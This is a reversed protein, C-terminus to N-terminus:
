SASNPSVVGRQQQSEVEAMNEGELCLWFQVEAPVEAVATRLKACNGLSNSFPAPASAWRTQQGPYPPHVEAMTEAYHCTPFVSVKFMGTSNAPSEQSLCDRKHTRIKMYRMPPSLVKKSM